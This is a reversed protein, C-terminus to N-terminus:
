VQDGMKEVNTIVKVNKQNKIREEDQLSVLQM